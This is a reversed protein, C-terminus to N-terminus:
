IHILSLVDVPAAADGGWYNGSKMNKNGKNGIRM